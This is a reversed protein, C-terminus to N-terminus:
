SVEAEPRIDISLLRAECSRRGADTIVPPSFRADTGLSTRVDVNNGGTSSCGSGVLPTRSWGGIGIVTVGADGITCLGAYEWSWSFPSWLFEFSVPDDSFCRRETSVVRPFPLFTRSTKMLPTCLPRARTVVIEFFIPCLTPRWLLTCRFRDLDAGPKDGREEDCDDSIRRHQSLSGHAVPVFAM